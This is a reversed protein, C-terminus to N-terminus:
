ALPRIRNEIFNLFADRQEGSVFADFPIVVAQVKNLWLFAHTPLKSYRIFAPWSMRTSAFDQSATLGEGDLMIKIVKGDIALRRYNFRTAWPVIVFDIVLLAAAIAALVPGASKNLGSSGSLLITASALAANAGFILWFVTREVRRWKPSRMAKALAEFDSLRFVYSVEM